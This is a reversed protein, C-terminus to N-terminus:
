RLSGGGFRDGGRRDDLGIMAADFGACSRDRGIDRPQDFVMLPRPQGGDALDFANAVGGALCGGLGGIIQEARWQRGFAEVLDNARM